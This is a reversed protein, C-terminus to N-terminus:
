RYAVVSYLALVFSTRKSIYAGHKGFLSFLRQNMSSTLKRIEYAPSCYQKCVAINRDLTWQLGCSKERRFSTVLIMFIRRKLMAWM